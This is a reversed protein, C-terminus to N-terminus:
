FNPEIRSRFAAPSLLDPEMCAAPGERLCSRPFYSAAAQRRGERCLRRSIRHHSRRDAKGMRRSSDCSANEGEDRNEDAAGGDLRTCGRTASPPSRRRGEVPLLRGHLPALAACRSLLTHRYGRRPAPRRRERINEAIIPPSLDLGEPRRFYYHFGGSGTIVTWTPPLKGNEEELAALSALGDHRADIDLPILNRTSVGINALPALQWWHKIIGSDTSASNVGNPALIPGSKGLRAIPHKGPSKCDVKGCSCVIKGVKEMPPWVSLVALGLRAFALAAGLPAHIM